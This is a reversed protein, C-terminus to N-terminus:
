ETVATLQRFAESYAVDISAMQNATFDLVNAIREVQEIEELSLTRGKRSKLYKDLVHYGGITFEWARRPVNAFGQKPNIWLKQEADSWRVQEVLNSGQEMPSGLGRSPVSRMLHTEVLEWGLRSLAEFDSAEEPFPIRPFDTRLFDAYSSRYTPAHLVAYIYGLIQEPTYTRAYREDIWRRFDPALNPIREKPRLEDDTMQHLLTSTDSDDASPYLYLPFIFEGGRRFCNYDMPKDTAIVAEFEPAGIVGSQQSVAVAINPQLLHRNVRERRHVTVNRNWITWRSDFPRYLIEALADELNIESLEEKARAYSWQNQSCLRFLARAEEETNTQLMSHVKSLAESQTMSIAFEDHTTVFGPAADANVGFIEAISWLEAYAAAAVDDRRQFLYLPASPTLKVASPQQYEKSTALEYKSQRMGWWEAHWVGKELEPRKVFLSIAVGQEIDFVNEDKSGDPAVEKKKANGHLDLVYIQDFSRMLSQRMGRFTPNDLFSHNSIIGVVGEDVEDMKQQAFRIFKVYDDQLWKGQAPKSLEPIGERYAAVSARAHPGNNRSHGSYPPNGTIVLIPKEKVEQAAETERSLEPLLANRQPEIPELTNTLYVQFREGSKLPHHKDKLYQSLKLHAITYPAILYEFGYINKLMHEHVYGDAKASQEGGINAFIRELVEVLFTGTGCAFDLVTVRERDALGQPVDFKDKLIDDIARVIFNVIPPPTYYVGRSERTSRDYKELFDEYFYVFPDRSFLRWEEESGTRTGRKAGRNRFALDEQIATLNIGNIISLVEEVVWRIDRYEPKALEDLFGVLEQIVGVSAPIHTRANLLTIKENPKSNLRALFLGYALTQAFADAFEGLTIEHSVQGKFVEYLGHLKGERHTKEQRVLEEALFDRLMHARVALAQALPKAKAIGIEPQSYFNQFLTTVEAVREPRLPQPKGELLSSDGLRAELRQDGHLWVFHLYDTVLLNDSLQRYKKIQESKLVPGIPTDVAKNEVYGLIAGVRSVKFDPAGKETRRPEHQIVTGKSAFMEAAAELLRQLASRGTHETQQDIPTQRLARVYEEFASTLDAAM